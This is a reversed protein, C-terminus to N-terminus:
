KRGEHAAQLQSDVDHRAIGNLPLLPLMM